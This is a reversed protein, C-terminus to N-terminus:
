PPCAELRLEEVQRRLPALVSDPQQWLRVVERAVPCIAEPPEGTESLSQVIRLRAHTGLAGDVEGAQVLHPPVMGELDTNEHWLWTAIASDPMNLGRYWEGRKLYLASRLFPRMALGASDYALDNATTDLATRYDGDAASSLAALFRSPRVTIERTGPGLSELRASWTDRLNAEGRRDALVALATAARAKLTVDTDPRHWLIELAREGHETAAAPFGELGLAFPMVHWEAAQTVTEPTEMRRAASDFAAIGDEIMGQGILGLGRAIFGQAASEPSGMRDASRVLLAGLTAQSAPNDIYRVWRAYLGLTEPRAEALAARGEGAAEPEFRERFGQGWVEPFYLDSEEPSAHIQELHRLATLAEEARGTRILAQTLHEVAPVLFSDRRVALELLAVASDLPVGWLGGRHYLEDAYLLTAYPDFLYEPRDLIDEYAALQDPGHPTVGAELLLSDLPSLSSLDMGQIQVLDEGIPRDALWRRAEALRLRALTFTSDADLAERYRREAKRWAGHRLADEGWFFSRTAATSYRALPDVEDATLTVDPALEGIIHMSIEVAAWRRLEPESERRIALSKLDIPSGTEDLLRLDIDLGGETRDVDCHMAHSARLVDTWDSSVLRGARREYLSFAARTNASSIGPIDELNRAVRQGIYIGLLSDSPEMADCPFVAVDLLTESTGPQQPVPREAARWLLAVIAALAVVAAWRPIRIGPGRTRLAKRFEAADKWRDEPAIALAKRLVPRAAVPVGSWDGSEPATLSTWRTGSLSEYLVMGLAYLDSQPSASTGKAQEPSMYAPTGPGRGERTLTDDASGELHVIGFDALLARGDVLFINSPKVDRHVVGAAHIRELAALLDRGLRFADRGDLPGHELREALTEGEILDMVYYSLGDKQDADHISVMNPHSFSALTRAERLFRAEGVATAMDPRLVKVAVVRELSTDRARFVTAMGGSAVEGDVEYRPALADRLRDLLSPM